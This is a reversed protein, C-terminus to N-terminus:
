NLFRHSQGYSTIWKQEQLEDEEDQKVDIYEMGIIEGEIDSDPDM